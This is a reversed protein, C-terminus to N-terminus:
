RFIVVVNIFLVVSCNCLSTAKNHSSLIVSTSLEFHVILVMSKLNQLLLLVISPFLFSQYVYCLNHIFVVMIYFRTYDLLFLFQSYCWYVSSILRLLTLLIIWIHPRFPCLIISWRLNASICFINWPFIADLKSFFITTLTLVIMTFTCTTSTLTAVILLIM